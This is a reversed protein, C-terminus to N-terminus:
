PVLQIPAGDIIAHKVVRANANDRINYWEQAEINSKGADRVSLDQAAINARGNHIMTVWSKQLNGWDKTLSFWGVTGSKSSDSVDAFLIVNSLSQNAFHDTRKHTFNIAVVAGLTSFPSNNNTEMSPCRVADWDALPLYNYVMLKSAWALHYEPLEPYNPNKRTVDAYSGGFFFFDENDAGYMSM